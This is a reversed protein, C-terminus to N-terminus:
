GLRHFNKIPQSHPSHAKCELKQALGGWHASTHVLSLFLPKHALSQRHKQWFFRSSPFFFVWSERLIHGQDTTKNTWEEEGSRRMQKGHQRSVFHELCNWWWWVPVQGALTLLSRRCSSLSTLMCSRMQPQRWFTFDWKVEHLYSPQLPLTSCVHQLVHKNSLIWHSWCIYSGLSHSLYCPWVLALVLENFFTILPEM